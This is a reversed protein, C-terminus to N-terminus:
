PPRSRGAAAGRGAPDAGGDVPPYCWRWLMLLRRLIYMTLVNYQITDISNLEIHWRPSPHRAAICMPLNRKDSCGYQIMRTHVPLVIQTGVQGLLCAARLHAIPEGVTRQSIRSNPKDCALTCRASASSFASPSITALGPRPVTNTPRDTWGSSSASSRCRRLRGVRAAHQDQAAERAGPAAPDDEVGQLAAQDLDAVSGQLHRVGVGVMRALHQLRQGAEVGADHLVGELRHRDLHQGGEPALGVGDDDVARPEDARVHIGDPELPALGDVAGHRQQALLAM